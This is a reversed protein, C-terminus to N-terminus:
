GFPKIRSSRPGGWRLPALRGPDDSHCVTLCTLFAIGPDLAEERAEETVPESVLSM